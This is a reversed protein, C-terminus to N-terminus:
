KDSGFLKEVINEVLRMDYQLRDMPCVLFFKAVKGPSTHAMELKGAMRDIVENKPTLHGLERLVAPYFDIQRNLSMCLHSLQGPSNFICGVCALHRAREM